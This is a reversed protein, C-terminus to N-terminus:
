CTLPTSLHRRRKEPTNPLRTFQFKPEGAISLILTRILDGPLIQLSINTRLLRVYGAKLDRLRDVLVDFDIADPSDFDYENNFARKSAEVDLTKYFSDQSL